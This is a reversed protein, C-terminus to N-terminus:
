MKYILDFHAATVFATAHERVIVQLPLVKDSCPIRKLDTSAGRPIVLV